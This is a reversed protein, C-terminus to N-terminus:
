EKVDKVSFAETTSKALSAIQRALGKLGGGEMWENVTERDGHCGTPTFNHFLIAYGRLHKLNEPDALLVADAFSNTVVCALFNAPTDGDMIYGIVQDVMYGPILKEAEARMRAESYEFVKSTSVPDDEDLDEVDYQQLHHQFYETFNM